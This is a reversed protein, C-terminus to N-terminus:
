VSNLDFKVDDICCMKCIFGAFCEFREFWQGCILLTSMIEIMMRNADVLPAASNM